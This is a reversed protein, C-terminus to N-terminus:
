KKWDREFQEHFQKILFSDILIIGIERNEDMSNASMNISSVILYTDDILIMKAHVYPKKWFHTFQSLLSAELEWKSDNDAVIFKLDLWSKDMLMQMIHEDQIYQQYMRISNKAWSILTEIKYRCDVPCVLLNPIIDSPELREGSYDKAFLKKLNDHMARNQSIFFFERNNFFSSYSLNATQIIFSEDTIFTKAHMFNDHLREDSVITAVKRWAFLKQLKQFWKEDSWYPLNEVIWRIKVGSRALKQFSDLLPQYSFQYLWFDLTRSREIEDQFTEATDRDPTMLLVGTINELQGSFLQKQEAHYQNSGIHVELGGTVFLATLTVLSLSLAIIDRKTM